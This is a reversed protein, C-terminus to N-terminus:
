PTLVRRGAGRCSGREADGGARCDIPTADGPYQAVPINAPLPIPATEAPATAALPPASNMEAPASAPPLEPIPPLEAPASAVSPDQPLSAPPNEAPLSVPPVTPIAAVSESRAMRVSRELRTRHGDDGDFAAPRRGRGIAELATEMEPPLPLPGENIKTFLFAGVAVLITITILPRISSM